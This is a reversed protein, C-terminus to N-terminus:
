VYMIVLFVGEIAAIAAGLRVMGRQVALAAMGYERPVALAATIPVAAVVVGFLFTKIAMGSVMVWDFVLGTIRVYQSLGWPSLGYMAVYALALAVACSLYTLLMVAVVSGIARPVLERHLPDRGSRQLAELEGRIHMLAVETNIAAGSRLAVFLAAFLPILELVLVRVTLELAYQSLGFDQATAVVIRILVFSILAAALTFGALVQWASFYIQRAAVRRAAEDYASPSLATAIAEAAFQFTRLWSAPRDILAGRPETLDRPISFPRQPM